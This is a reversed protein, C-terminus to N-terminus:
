IGCGYANYGPPCTKRIPVPAPTAPPASVAGKFHRVSYVSNAWPGGCTQTSNGSCPMSCTAQDIKNGPANGCFCWKGYQVGAYAYNKGACYSVCKEVTMAEDNDIMAGGLMRGRIGATDSNRNEAYCDGNPIVAHECSPGDSIFQKGFDRTTFTLEYRGNGTVMLPKAVGGVGSVCPPAAEIHNDVGQQLVNFFSMSKRPPVVADLKNSAGYRFVTIVLTADTENRIVLTAFPSARVVPILEQGVLVLCLAFWAWMPSKSTM